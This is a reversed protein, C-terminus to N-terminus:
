GMFEWWILTRDDSASVLSDGQESWWLKNVSNVHGNDRGAELVKILQFTHTEWLKITKDRSATALWNGTPHVAIDNITFWHAPHSELLQPNPALQWMKLHADRGGSWLFAGDQSYRLSFVSNAHANELKSKIELQDADVLYISKDSAGVAIENRVANFDMCRLSQNSLILSELSRQEPISWRSLRGDGGISFLNGQLRLLDFVGKQHHQIGRSTDPKDLNVWHLGGNMDGGVLINEKPLSLLTFLQTDAKALLHGSEPQEFRWGVMWGDGGASCFDYTLAGPSLCYIAGNHGSLRHKFKLTAKDEM